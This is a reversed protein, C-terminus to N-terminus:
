FPFPNGSMLKFIFIWKNREILKITDGTIKKHYLDPLARNFLINGSRSFNIFDEASFDGKYPAYHHVTNANRWVMAYAINVSDDNIVKMLRDSWWVPNPISELGTETLAAVKNKEKALESIIILKKRVWGLGDGNPTFDWYDDFGLVDVYDDGPYRELYEEKTKFNRDPSFAYIFNRVKKRDRLYTVTERWLTKFEGPTCFHKGWWFWSGDFEHYPRFIIPIPKGTSDVLIKAYDAISDLDALYKLYCDGGPLIKEVARTTDYFNNDTLPNYEHWCFVNVGGREYAETVLKKYREKARAVESQPQHFLFYFDWGYLGPFDNTVDKVDSRQADGSWGVGYSTSEHHGFIIKRNEALQKLNYFLYVTENTASSDVMAVGLEKRVNVKTYEPVCASFFPVALILLLLIKGKMIPELKETNTM